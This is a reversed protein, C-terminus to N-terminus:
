LEEITIRYEKNNTTKMFEGGEEFEFTGKFDGDIIAVYTGIDNVTGFGVGVPAFPSPKNELERLTKATFIFNKDKGYDSYYEKGLEIAENRNTARVRYGSGHPVGNKKHQYSIIYLEKGQLEEIEKELREIKSELELVEHIIKDDEEIFIDTGFLPHTSSDTKTFIKTPINLPQPIKDIDIPDFEEKLPPNNNIINPKSPADDKLDAKSKFKKIDDRKIEGSKYKDYVMNQFDYDGVRSIEDLVSLGIDLKHKKIDQIINPELYSASLAKSVYTDKKGIKDALDKKKEYIGSEWLKRIFLAIECPTLDKRQINEILSLEDIQKDDADIIHAKITPLDALLHAKYRCEGSIIMYKGTDTVKTVAIPQMLGNKVISNSLEQIHDDDFEKRPQNPNPYVKTIDLEMFSNKQLNDFKGKTMDDIKLSM